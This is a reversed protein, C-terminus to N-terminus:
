LAHSVMETTGDPILNLSDGSPQLVSFSQILFLIHMLFKCYTVRECDARTRASSVHQNMDELLVTSLLQSAHGVNVLPMSPTSVDYDYEDSGDIETHGLDAVAIFSVTSHIGVLPATM